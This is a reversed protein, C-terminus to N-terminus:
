AEGKLEMVFGNPDRFRVLGEDGLTTEIDARKLKEMAAKKDFGAVRMCIHHISPKEGRGRARIRAQNQSRWVLRAGAKQKAVSCAGFLKQYHESRIIWIRFM